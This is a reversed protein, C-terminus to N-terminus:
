RDIMHEVLHSVSMLEDSRDHIRQVNHGNYAMWFSTLVCWDDFHEATETLYFLHLPISHPSVPHFSSLSTLHPPSSSPSTCVSMFGGNIVLSDQVGWTVFSVSYHNRRPNFYPASHGEYQLSGGGGLGEEMAPFWILVREWLRSLTQVM